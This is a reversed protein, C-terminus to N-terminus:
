YTYTYNDYDKYLIREDIIDDNSPYNLQNVVFSTKENNYSKNEQELSKLFERKSKPMFKAPDIRSSMDLDAEADDPNPPEHYVENDANRDKLSEGSGKLTTKVNTRNTYYNSLTTILSKVFYYLAFGLVILLIFLIFIILINSNIMNDIQNTIITANGGSSSDLKDLPCSM